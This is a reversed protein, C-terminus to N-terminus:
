EPGHRLELRGIEEELFQGTSMVAIRDASILSAAGGFGDPRMKSCTWASMIEVFDLASRRVVDQLITEYELDSFDLEIEIEADDLEALATEVQETIRSAIGADEAILAKAEDIGIFVLNSPGMSSFFYVDEGSMEHEFMECMLKFELATFAAKPIDPQVVTHSYYDAM